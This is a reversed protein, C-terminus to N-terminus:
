HRSIRCTAGVSRLGRKSLRPDVLELADGFKYTRCIALGSCFKHAARANAEVDRPDADISKTTFAATAPLDRLRRVEAGIDAGYPLDLILSFAINIADSEDLDVGGHRGPRGKAVLGAAQLATIRAAVTKQPVEFRESYINQAKVTRM